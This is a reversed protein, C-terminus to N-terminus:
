MRLVFSMLAMVALCCAGIGHRRSGQLADRKPGPWFDGGQRFQM